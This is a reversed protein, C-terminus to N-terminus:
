LLTPGYDTRAGLRLTQTGCSLQVIAGPYIQTQEGLVVEKTVNKRSGIRIRSTEKKEKNLSDQIIAKEELRPTISLIKDESYRTYAQPLIKRM